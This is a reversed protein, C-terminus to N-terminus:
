REFTKATPDGVNYGNDRLCTVLTAFKDVQESVNERERGFTLGELHHSCAEYPAALKERTVTFGEVLEPRPVNGDSDVTPDMFEIGEDRM